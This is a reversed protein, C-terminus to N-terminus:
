GGRVGGMSPPSTFHGSKKNMREKLSVVVLHLILSHVAETMCMDHVPVHVHFDALTGLKGGDFGTLGVTLVGMKKAREVARLINPSNGSGSIALALDGARALTALQEEFVTEYGLDNALATIFPVNDTLAVTRFRKPQKLDSLTGKALDQAFHSANAASGGNGFMFITHEGEYAKWLLDLFADLKRTDLRDIVEQAQTLYAKIKEM